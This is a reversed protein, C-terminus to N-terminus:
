KTLVAPNNKIVYHERVSNDFIRFCIALNLSTAGKSRSAFIRLDFYNLTKFVKERSICLHTQTSSRNLLYELITAGDPM